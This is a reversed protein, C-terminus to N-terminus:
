LILYFFNFITYPLSFCKFSRSFCSRMSLFSILINLSFYYGDRSLTGIFEGLNTLKLDSFLEDNIEDYCFFDKLCHSSIQSVANQRLEEFNSLSSFIYFYFIYGLGVTKATM